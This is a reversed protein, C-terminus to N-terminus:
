VMPDFPSHEANAFSRGTLRLLFGWHSVVAVARWDHWAAANPAPVHTARPSSM